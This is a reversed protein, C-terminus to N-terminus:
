EDNEEFGNQSVPQEESQEANAIVTSLRSPFEDAAKKCPKCKAPSSAAHRHEQGLIAAAFHESDLKKVEEVAQDATLNHAVPKYLETEADRSLVLKLSQDDM